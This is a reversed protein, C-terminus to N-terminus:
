DAEAFASVQYRYCRMGAPWDSPALGAKRKLQSLFARPEPLQDWVQPLFTARHTGAELWLGDVRPRLAACLAEDNAVALEELPSLVSIEIRLRPLEEASVPSFRPDDFGASYAFHAVAQLLPEKAELTGICGRLAGELHLTVFCARPAALPSDSDVSLAPPRQGSALAAELTQRAVDLLQQQGAAALAETCPM